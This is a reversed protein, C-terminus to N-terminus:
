VPRAAVAAVSAMGRQTLEPTGAVPLNGRQPFAAIVGVVAVCSCCAIRFAGTAANGFGLRLRSGSLGGVGTVGANGRDPFPAVHCRRREWRAAVCDSVLRDVRPNQED